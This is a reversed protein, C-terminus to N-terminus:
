KKSGSKGGAAKKAAAEYLQRRLDTHDHGTKQM